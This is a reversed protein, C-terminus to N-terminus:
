KYCELLESKTIRIECTELRTERADYLKELIPKINAYPAHHLKKHCSVCLSVINAEVDISHEYKDQNSIPILHHAEVYNEGTTKSIFDQHTDDIECKYKALVIAVKSTKADRQFSGARKGAKKPLEKKPKDSITIDQSVDEQEVQYQFNEEPNTLLESLFKELDESINVLFVSRANKVEVVPQGSSELTINNLWKSDVKFFTSVDVFVGVQESSTGVVGSYYSPIFSTLHSKSPIQGRDYLQNLRGVFLEREGRNNAIFFTFSDQEERIQACIRQRNKESVSSKPASSFHGWIMRNKTECMIRHETITDSAPLPLNYNVPFKLALHLPRSM